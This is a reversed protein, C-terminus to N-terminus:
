LDDRRLEFPFGGRRELLRRTGFLPQTVMRSDTRSAAHDSRDGRTGEATPAASCVPTIHVAPPSCSSSSRRPQSLMRCGQFPPQLRTKLCVAAKTDPISTVSPNACAPSEHSDAA